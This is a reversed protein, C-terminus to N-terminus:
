GQKTLKDIVGRLRDNESQLVNQLSQYTRLTDIMRTMEIVPKVNSGEVLGQKVTTNTPPLPADDTEYLNNGLPRLNQLNEFEAVMMQGIQGDQNSVAGREDISIETSGAPIIINGGGASAMPDGAATQLTGLVDMQFNGARTYAVKGNPGQVGFFGPGVLAVDLPNGTQALSGPETSMYQGRNQVFSMPDYDGREKDIYEEFLMNQARYGPTSMNAINNAITDMNDRLVVQKSLGIYISNEV